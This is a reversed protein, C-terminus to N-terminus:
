YRLRILIRTKNKRFRNSVVSSGFSTKEINTFINNIIPFHPIHSVHLKLKLSQKSVSNDHFKDLGM